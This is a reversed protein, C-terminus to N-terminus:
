GGVALVVVVVEVLYIRSEEVAGASPSIRIDEVSPLELNRITRLMIEKITDTVRKDKPIVVAVNPKGVLKREEFILPANVPPNILAYL